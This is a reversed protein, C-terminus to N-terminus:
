CAGPVSVKDNSSTRTSTHKPKALKVTAYSGTGLTTDEVDYHAHLCKDCHAGPKCGLEREEAEFIVKHHNKGM